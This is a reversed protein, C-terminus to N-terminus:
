LWFGRLDAGIDKSLKSRHVARRRLIRTVLDGCAFAVCGRFLDSELILGEVFFYETCSYILYLVEWLISSQARLRCRSVVMAGGRSIEIGEVMRDFSEFGKV